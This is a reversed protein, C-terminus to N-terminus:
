VKRKEKYRGRLGDEVRGEEGKREKEGQNERKGNKGGGM